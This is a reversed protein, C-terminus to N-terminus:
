YLGDREITISQFHFAIQQKKKENNNRRFIWQFSQYNPTERNPVMQVIKFVHLLGM